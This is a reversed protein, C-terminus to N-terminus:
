ESVTLGIEDVLPILDNLNKKLNEYTFFGGANLLPFWSGACLGGVDVHGCLM